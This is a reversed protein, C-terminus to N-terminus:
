LNGRSSEVRKHRDWLYCGLYTLTMGAVFGVMGSFFMLEYLDKKSVMPQSLLSIFLQDM